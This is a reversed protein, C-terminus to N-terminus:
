SLVGGGGFSGGANNVWRQVSKICEGPQNWGTARRTGIESLGMDAVRANPFNQAFAPPGAIALTAFGLLASLLAVAVRQPVHRPPRPVARDGRAPAAASDHTHFLANSRDSHRHKM